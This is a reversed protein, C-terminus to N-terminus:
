DFQWVINGYIAHDDSQHAIQGSYALRATIPKAISRAFLSADILLSNNAIPVGAIAFENGGSIFALSSVPTIHNYAHRWGVTLSQGITAQTSKFVEAGERVGLTSYVVNEDVKGSLATIGGQEDWQQTSANVDTLNVFPAWHLVQQNFEYAAEIFGQAVGGNYDARLRNFLGPAMATRQSDINLWSYAAGARLAWQNVQMGVYTALHYNNSDIDSHRADVTYRSTSYGGLLGVRLDSHLDKDVGIFVGQNSRNLRAANSNGALHGWAGFGQGWWSTGNTQSLATNEVRYFPDQQLRNLAAERVYRSDEIWASLASVHAEGSLSNLAAREEAGSASNMLAIAIPNTLALKDIANATNIQNFTTAMSMFPATARLITLYVNNADYQLALNLFPLNLQTLNAYQGTVGGAATLITYRTNPLYNGTEKVVAVTGGNITATTGIAILDSQGQANIDVEYMSNANQVYDGVVFLTGISNGPAIQGDVILSGVNGNGQLRGLANVRVAGGLSGNVSLTGQNVATNGTFSTSNGTLSLVGSGEKILSGNGNFIGAYHTNNSTGVTLTRNGLNIMSGSVGSLDQITQNGSTIDLRSTASSLNVGSSLALSAIGSLRLIGENVQTLGTYSQNGALTLQGVGQKTLKGVGAIMGDLVLDADTQLTGGNIGLTVNRQSTFSTTTELTGGNFSVNGTTAGLNSDSAIQLIGQNIAWNTETATSGTLQWTSLGIKQYNSFNQYQNTPGIASVNFVNNANINGGLALTNNNNAVAVVNGNIVSNAQLELTNVGSLFTIANGAIGATGPPTGAGGAGGLGATIQGANIFYINSAQVGDGGNGGNGGKRANVNGGVGGNGGQIRGYNTLFGSANRIASGGSGGNSGESLSGVASTGGNGGNGGSIIATSLLTLNGSLATLLIGFGGGGGGGGADTRGNGGAGGAGGTNNTITVTNETTLVLATGGGGGGGGAGGSISSSSGGRGGSGGINELNFDTDIAGIGGGGGGGSGLNQGFAAGGGGGTGAGTSSVGGGGGGGSSVIVGEGGNGGGNQGTGGVGGNANSKGGQGGNVANQGNSNVLGGNGGATGTGGGAGGIGQVNSNGNTGNGGAIGTAMISPAALSIEQRNILKTLPQNFPSAFWPALLLTSLKVPEAHVQQLSLALISLPITLM